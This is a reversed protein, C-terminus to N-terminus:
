RGLEWAIPESLAEPQGELAMRIKRGMGICHGACLYPASAPGVERMATGLAEDDGANDVAFLFTDKWAGAHECAQALWEDTIPPGLGMIVCAALVDDKCGQGPLSGLADVVTSPVNRPDKITGLARAAGESLPAEVPHNDIYSMVERLGGRARVDGRDANERMEKLIGMANQDFFRARRVLEAAGQKQKEALSATM